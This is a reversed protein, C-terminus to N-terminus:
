NYWVQFYLRSDYGDKTIILLDKYSDKDMDVIKMETTYAEKFIVDKDPQYTGGKNLLITLAEGDGFDPAVRGLSALENLGDNNLDCAFVMQSDPLIPYDKGKIFKGSGNNIMMSLASGTGALIDKDGDAEFDWLSSHSAYIDDYYVPDAFTGDGNNFLLIIDSQSTLIDPYLDGNLDECLLTYQYLDAPYIAPAAFQGNGQNLFVYVGEPTDYPITVIVDNRGDRNVDATDLSGRVDYGPIVTDLVFTADGNNLYISITENGWDTIVLDTDGDGDMDSADLKMIVGIQDTVLNISFDDNGNNLIVYVNNASIISLGAVADIRNDNNFDAYAMTRILDNSSGSSGQFYHKKGERFSIVPEIDSCGPSKESLSIIVDKVIPGFQSQVTMTLAGNEIQYHYPTEDRWVGNVCRDPPLNINFHATTTKEYTNLYKGTGNAYFFINENERQLLNHIYDLRFTCGNEPFPGFWEIMPITPFEPVVTPYENGSWTWEIRVDDQWLKIDHADPPVPFLMTSISSPPISIFVFEGSFLAELGTETERITIKMDELPMNAPLPLPIPNSWLVLSGFLLIFFTLFFQKITM